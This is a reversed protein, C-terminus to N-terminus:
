QTKPRRFLSAVTFFLLFITGTFRLRAIAGHFLESPWDPGVEHYFPTAPFYTRWIYVDNMAGTAYECAFLILLGQGVAMAFKRPDGPIPESLFMGLLVAIAALLFISFFTL